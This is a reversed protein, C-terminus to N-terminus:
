RTEQVALGCIPCRGNYHPSPQHVHEAVHRAFAGLGGMVTLAGVVAVLTDLATM